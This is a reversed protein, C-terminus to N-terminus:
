SYNTIIILWSIARVMFSPLKSLSFVNENEVIKGLYYDMNELM